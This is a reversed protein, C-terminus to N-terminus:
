QRKGNKERMSRINIWRSSGPLRAEWYLWGDLNTRNGDKTLGVAGAAASPSSYYKGEVLWKGDAIVGEYKRGNYNMRLMTADQLTVGKGHWSSGTPAAKTIQASDTQAPSLGILRRLIENPTESFSTRETEIKKSVEFDIEISRTDEM